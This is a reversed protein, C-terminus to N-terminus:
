VMLSEVKQEFAHSFEEGREAQKQVILDFRNACPQVSRISFLEDNEVVAAAPETLLADEKQRHGVPQMSQLKFIKM